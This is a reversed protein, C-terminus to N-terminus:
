TKIKIFQKWSKNTSIISIRTLLKNPTLIKLGKGEKVEKDGELTPMDCVDISEEKDTLEEKDTSENKNESWMSYDYGELFLKEPDYKDGM